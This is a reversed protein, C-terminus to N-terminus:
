QETIQLYSQIMKQSFKKPDMSGILFSRLEEPPSDHYSPIIRDKNYSEPIWWISVHNILINPAHMNPIFVKWSKIGHNISNPKDWTLDEARLEWYVNYVWANLLQAHLWSVLIPMIGKGQHDKRTNAETTEGHEISGLINWAEDRIIHPQHSYLIVAVLTRTMDRVWLVFSGNEEHLIEQCASESWGFSEWWLEFLEGSFIRRTLTYWHNQFDQLKRLNYEEFDWIRSLIHEIYEQNHSQLNKITVREPDRGNKNFSITYYSFTPTWPQYNHYTGMTGNLEDVYADLAMKEYDSLAGIVRIVLRSKQTIKFLERKADIEQLINQLNRITTRDEFVIRDYSGHMNIGPHSAWSYWNAQALTHTSM